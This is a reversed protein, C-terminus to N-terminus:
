KAWDRRAGALKGMEEGKAGAECAVRVRNDATDNFPARNVVLPVNNYNQFCNSM